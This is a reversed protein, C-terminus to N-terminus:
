WGFFEDPGPYDEYWGNQRIPRPNAVEAYTNGRRWRGAALDKAHQMVEELGDRETWTKRTLVVCKGEVRLGIEFVVPKPVRKHALVLLAHDLGSGRRWAINIRAYIGDFPYKRTVFYAPLKEGRLGCVVYGFGDWHREQSELFLQGERRAVAQEVDILNDGETLTLIVTGSELVKTMLGPYKERLSMEHRQGDRWTTDRGKPRIRLHPVLLGEPLEIKVATQGEHM